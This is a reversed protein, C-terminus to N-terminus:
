KESINCCHLSVDTPDLKMKVNKIACPLLSTMQFTQPEGDTKKDTILNNSRSLGSDAYATVTDCPKNQQNRHRKEKQRATM